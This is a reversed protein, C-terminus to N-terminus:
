YGTLKESRINDSSINMKELVEEIGDVMSPPGCVWFVSSDVEPTLSRILEENVRGTLGQWKEKVEEPHTITIDMKFNPNEMAMNRLDDQFAIEDPTSNSYILHIQTSLKKDTAFKIMSRFPTIGIGGAIFINPEVNDSDLIFTGNPGEGDIVAGMPLEDLTRKYGSGGRLKTTFVLENGETPSSSITFHRTTGRPDEYKLEPLTFYFFQGPRFTVPKEPEWFFSKTGQGQEAKNILKLQM